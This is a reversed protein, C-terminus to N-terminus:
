KNMKNLMDFYREKTKDIGDDKDNNTKRIPTRRKSNPQKKIKASKNDIPDVKCVKRQVWEDDSERAIYYIILSVKYKDAFRQAKEKCVSLDEDSCVAYFERDQEVGYAYIRASLGMRTKLHTLSISNFTAGNFTQFLM